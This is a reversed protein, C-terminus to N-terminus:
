FGLLLKDYLFEDDLLEDDVLEPFLLSDVFLLVLSLESSMVTGSTGSSSFSLVESLEITAGSASISSLVCSSFM